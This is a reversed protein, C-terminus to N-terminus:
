DESDSSADEGAADDDAPDPAAALAAAAQEEMVTKRIQDDAAITNIIVRGKSGVQKSFLREVMVTTDTATELYGGWLLFGGIFGMVVDDLTIRHMLMRKGNDLAIGMQEYIRPLNITPDEGEVVPWHRHSLGLKTYAELNHTGPILSITLDFDNNLVWVIEEQRRIPRHSSGKGGLRECLAIQDKLVWMFDRPQIGQAWKGRLSSISMEVM